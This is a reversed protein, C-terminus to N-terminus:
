NDKVDYRLSGTKDTVGPVFGTLLTAFGRCGDVMMGLQNFPLTPPIENNPAPCSVACTVGASTTSLINCRVDSRTWTMKPVQVPMVDTGTVSLSSSGDISRRTVPIVYTGRDSSWVGDEEEASGRVSAASATQTDAPGQDHAASSHNLPATSSGMSPILDALM